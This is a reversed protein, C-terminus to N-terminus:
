WFSKVRLPFVSGKSLSNGEELLVEHGKSSSLLSLDVTHLVPMFFASATMMKWSLKMTSSVAGSVCQWLSVSLVSSLAPCLVSKM